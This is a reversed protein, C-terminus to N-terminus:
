DIIEAWVGNHYIRRMKNKTDWCWILDTLFEVRGASTRQKKKGIPIFVVGSPYKTQAQELLLEENTKPKVSFLSMAHEYSYGYQKALSKVDFLFDQEKEKELQEKSKM